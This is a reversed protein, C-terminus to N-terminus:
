GYIRWPNFTKIPILPIALKAQCALIMTSAYNAVSYIEWIPLFYALITEPIQTPSLAVSPGAQKLILTGPRLM